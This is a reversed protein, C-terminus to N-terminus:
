EFERRLRRLKEKADDKSFTPGDSFELKYDHCSLGFQSLTLDILRLAENHVYVATETGSRAFARLFHEQCSEFVERGDVVDHWILLLAFFECMKQASTEVSLMEELVFEMESSNRLLAWLRAAEQLSDCRHEMVHRLRDM